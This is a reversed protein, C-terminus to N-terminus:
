SRSQGQARHRWAARRSDVAIFASLVAAKLESQFAAFRGCHVLAARLDIKGRASDERRGRRWRRATDQRDVDARRVDLSELRRRRWRSRGAPRRRTTGTTRLEAQRRGTTTGRGSGIDLNIFDNTFEDRDVEINCTGLLYRPVLSTSTGLYRPVSSTFNLPLSM